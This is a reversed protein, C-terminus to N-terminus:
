DCAVVAKTEAFGIPLSTRSLRALAVPATLAATTGCTPGPSRETVRLFLTDSRSYASDFVISFGGSSRTGMSAVVIMERTFDVRPLPPRPSHSGMIRTWLSAWAASDTVVIRERTEIGSTHRYPVIALEPPRAAPETAEYRRLQAMISDDQVACCTGIPQRDDAPTSAPQDPGDSVTRMQCGTVVAALALLRAAAPVSRPIM